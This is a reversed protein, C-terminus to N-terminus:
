AFFFDLVAALSYFIRFRMWLVIYKTPKSSIAKQIGSDINIVLAAIKSITAFQNTSHPYAAFHSRMFSFLPM